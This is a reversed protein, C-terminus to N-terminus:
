LDNSEIEAIITEEMLSTSKKAEKSDCCSCNKDTFIDGHSTRAFAIIAFLSLLLSIYGM